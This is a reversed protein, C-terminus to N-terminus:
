RASDHLTQESPELEQDPFSLVFTTGGDIGEEISIDGGAQLMLRRVLALGMGTGTNDPTQTVLRSFLEFVQTRHRPAIGRGNDAIYILNCHNVTKGYIKIQMPREPHRYTVANSLLARFIEELRRRAFLIKPLPKEVQLDANSLELQEQIAKERLVQDLVEETHLRQVPLIVRDLELYRQVDHVLYSLYKAQAHIFDISLRADKDQELSPKSSLREAFAMLRRTPEQFHHAMVESLRQLERNSTNLSLERQYLQNAMENMAKALEGLEDKQELDIQALLDGKRIKEVGKMLQQLPYTVLERILLLSFPIILLATILLATLIAERTAASAQHYNEVPYVFSLYASQEGGALRLPFVGWFGGATKLFNIEREAIPPLKNKLQEAHKKVLPQGDIFGGQADLLGVELGGRTALLLFDGDLRRMLVLSGVQREEELHSRVLPYKQELYVQGNDLYYRQGPQLQNHRQARRFIRDELDNKLSEDLAGEPSMLKLDPQKNAYSVFGQLVKSEEALAFSVLQDDAAYLYAGTSRGTQIATQLRQSLRKKEEDFLLSQYNRTDQFNNILNLIAVLREEECLLHAESVLAAELNKRNNYLSSFGEEILSEATQTHYNLLHRDVLYGALLLSILGIALTFFLLKFKLSSALM